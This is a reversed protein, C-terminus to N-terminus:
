NVFEFDFQYFLGPGVLRAAVEAFTKGLCIRKGGLFPVFSMPHRKKGSPTLFYPSTPDFREPIYRSPNQWQAPDNHLDNNDIQFSDYKKLTIGCIDVDETFMMTTTYFVPTEIRLSENFCNSLYRLDSTNDIDVIDCIENFEIHSKGTQKLQPNVLM